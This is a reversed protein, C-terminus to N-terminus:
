SAWCRRAGQPGTGVILVRGGAQLLYVTHKPSLSTRGVVLATASLARPRSGAAGGPEGLRGGGLALVVGATGLWWSGGVGGQGEPRAPAGVGGNADRSLILRRGVRAEAADPGQARAIGRPAACASIVALAVAAGRVLLISRSTSM